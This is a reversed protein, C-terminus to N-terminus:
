VREDRDYSITASLPPGLTPMTARLKAHNIPSERPRIHQPLLNTAPAELDDGMAKRLQAMEAERTPFEREILYYLHEEITRQKRQADAKLLEYMEDPIEIEHM